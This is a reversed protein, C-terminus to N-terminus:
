QAAQKRHIIRTRYEGRIKRDKPSKERGFSNEMSFIARGLPTEKMLKKMQGRFQPGVFGKLEKNM